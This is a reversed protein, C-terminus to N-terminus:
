LKCLDPDSEWDSSKRANPDDTPAVTPAVTPPISSCDVTSVQWSYFGVMCLGALVSLAATPIMRKPIKQLTWMGTLGM